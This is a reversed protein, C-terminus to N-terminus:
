RRYTPEILLPEISASDDRTYPVGRGIVIPRAAAIQGMLMSAAAAIEDVRNMQPSSTKGHLDTEGFPEELHRIGAIGIAAGIAGQRAPSGFSDSIVVAVTDDSRARIGDRIRRASADPDAPLLIAHEAQTQDYMGNSTDVGSGTGVYGLRHLTVVHRGNVELIARSEDLYLQCLRSDRGTREALEVAQASPVVDRLHVIRGEAKSVVKQAVVVVDDHRISLCDREASDIVLSAIDDGPQVMGIGPLARWRVDWRM